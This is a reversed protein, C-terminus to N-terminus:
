LGLRRRERRIREELIRYVRDATRQLETESIRAPRSERPQEERPKERYAMTAAPPHYNPATWQIQDATEQPQSVAIDRVVGMTQQAAGGKKLFSRAWEPLSRVFDSEEMETRPTEEPQHPTVPGTTSQAPGYTLAVPAVQNPTPINTGESRGDPGPMSAGAASFSVHAGGTQEALALEISAPNWAAGEVRGQYRREAPIESLPLTINPSESGAPIHAAGPFTEKQIQASSIGSPKLLFHPQQETQENLGSFDRISASLKRNQRQGYKGSPGVSFGSKRIDAAVAAPSWPRHYMDAYLMHMEAEQDARGTLLVRLADPNGTGRNEEAEELHTLALPPQQEGGISRLMGDPLPFAPLREKGVAAIKEPLLRQVESTKTLFDGTQRLINKDTEKARFASEAIRVDQALKSLQRLENGQMSEPKRETQVAM